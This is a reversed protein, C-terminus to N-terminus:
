PAFTQGRRITWVDRDPDGLMVTYTGPAFVWPRVRNEQLRLAYVLEGTSEDIVKLVPRAVDCAIEPLYGVPKRAYNDRLSLEVPWGPMQATAPDDLDALIRYCEVTIRGTPKHFRVLGFGSRKQDLLELDGANEGGGAGTFVIPNGVAYFTLPHGWRSTFRGLYPPLDGSYTPRALDDPLPGEPAFGLLDPRWERPFGAAISPVTFSVGADEFTDIGHHVVTPLHNDGAYMFAHAKRIVRLARDRGPPPWGNADVDQVWTRGQKGGYTHCQAFVTQSLTVKADQNKWDGAWRELFALQREGLLPAEELSWVEPVMPPGAKFKRDELIAMGIRGYTMDTFYVTIGQEVPRPDVPDPLHGTQTRQVMNVWEPPMIYGGKNINDTPIGGAGWINGQYVDHDDPLIVSPRDKMLEGFSWGLLYWKRLYDLTAVPVPERTIGFGANGEYIQDGSFFLVDPDLRKVNEVITPNPFGYDKHGTFGAITIEDKEVPDHRVTGGYTYERGNWTYHVSYPTDRSADWPEVRFLVTRSLPEVEARVEAAHEGEGYRLVASTAGQGETPALQAQLKLVGEDLTYQTWLIPGFNQQPGGALNTGRVAFRRFAAVPEGPLARKPKGHYVIAVNGRIRASPVVLTSEGLSTGNADTATLVARHTGNGNPILDLVLKLPFSLEVDSSPEGLVLKGSTTIGAVVGKGWIANYRYDDLKGQIGFALGCTAPHARDLSDIVLEIHAESQPTLQYTLLHVNRGAAPTLCELKGDAIRWDQLPNAWYEPGAWVGDPTRDFRSEFEVASASSTVLLLLVFSVIRFM